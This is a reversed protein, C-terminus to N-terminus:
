VQCAFRISSNQIMIKEWKKKCKGIVSCVFVFLIKIHQSSQCVSLCVAYVKMHANLKHICLCKCRRCYYSCTPRIHIIQQWVWEAIWCVFFCCFCISFVFIGNSIGCEVTRLGCVCVCVNLRDYLCVYFMCSCVSFHSYINLARGGRVCMWINSNSHM